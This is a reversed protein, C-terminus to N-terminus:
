KVTTSAFREMLSAFADHETAADEQRAGAVDVPEGPDPALERGRGNGSGGTRLRVQTVLEDAARAIRGRLQNATAESTGWDATAAFVATGVPQAKLYSFLPRMAHELVLSHRESGGTAGLVLPKGELATTDILDFFSKFLGSFSANFVPTVVVLADASQVEDLIGQLPTEAYGTVFNNAIATAYERLDVHTVTYAINQATLADGFHESIADALMRSSSPAGLGANVAVLKIPNM